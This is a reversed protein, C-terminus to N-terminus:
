ADNKSQNCSHVFALVSAMAKWCEPPVFAGVDVASLVQWLAPDKVVPVQAEQALKILQQADRDLAQVLIKPAWDGTDWSIATAGRGLRGRKGAIM